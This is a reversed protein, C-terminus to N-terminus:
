LMDKLLLVSISFYFFMSLIDMLTSIFPGSILAPDLHIKKAFFPLIVGLLNSIIVVIIISLSLSLMILPERTNVISRLFM